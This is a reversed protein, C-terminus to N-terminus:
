GERPDGLHDIVLEFLRPVVMPHVQHGMGPIRVFRAHPIVEATAPGGDPRVIKDKDGHIVLTPATIRSLVETRDGSSRIAGIQRRMVEAEGRPDLSRDWHTAALQREYAVDVPFGPGALHHSMVLRGRIYMDRTKAGPFMLLAATSTAATGVSPDGTTSCLSILRRVLEPHHGALSQAIMGGLSFGMVDAREVGLARLTDAVDESMDEVSYQGEPLPGRLLRRASPPTSTVRFSRGVDRNDLRIVRYGRDALAHVFSMPWTALDFALGTILVLPAGDSPGDLRVCIFREDDLQVTREEGSEGPGTLLAPLQEPVPAAADDFRLFRDVVPKRLLQRRDEFYNMAMRWPATDGQRPLQDLSRQVYGADFDLLPRTRLGDPAVPRVSAAGVSDTHAILRSLWDVVLGIKLTWSGNTYGIAFALNPVDSLMAGRYAIREPLNVPRGDVSLRAGGFMLLDFGTASVVVDAAVRRGDALVLGDADFRDIGATVIHANPEHLAAFFDGNPAVCLRQDWPDYPPTFHERVSVDAPLRRRNVAAIGARVVRPAAKSAVWLARQGAAMLPRLVRAARARGLATFLVKEAVGPSPLPLIYSPTRQVMTTEAGRAILEPLLTVATAGSGIVAVKKGRVDLDEPWFQPHVLRGKFEAVGAFDPIHPRDYGYYGTAMFVWTATLQQTDGTGVPEPRGAGDVARRTSHESAAPRVVDSPAAGADPYPHATREVTVTWRSTGSSWDAATVRRHYHILEEVGSVRATDRIYDLIASGEAIPNQRTWPRFDYGYTYLDSDSRVGPYRFLDWTGGSNGRSELVTISKGPHEHRLKCAAGIGSLGAGIILIDTHEPLAAGPHESM